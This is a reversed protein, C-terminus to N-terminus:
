MTSTLAQDVFYSCYRFIWHLTNHHSTIHHLRYHLTIYYIVYRITVCCLAVYCLIYQLTSHHLLPMVVKCKCLSVIYVWSVTPPYPASPFSMHLSTVRIHRFAERRRGRLEGHRENLSVGCVGSATFSSAALAMRLPPAWGMRYQSSLIIGPVYLSVCKGSALCLVCM